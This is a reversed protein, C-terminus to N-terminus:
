YWADARRGEAVDACYDCRYHRSVDIRTLRDPRGCDPCPFKRPNLEHGCHRCFDDDRGTRGFCADCTGTTAARLASGSGPDAFGVGDILEDQAEIMGIRWDEYQEYFTDEGKASFIAERSGRWRLTYVDLSTKTVIVKGLTKVVNLRAM